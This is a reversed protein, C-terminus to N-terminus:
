YIINLTMTKSYTGAVKGTQGSAITGTITGPTATTGTGTGTITAAGNTMTASGNTYTVNLRNDGAAGLPTENELYYTSGTAPSDLFSINYTQGSSCNVTVASTATITNAPLYAAFTMSAASVTCTAAVSSAVAFQGTVTSLSNASEASILLVGVLCTLATTSRALSMKSKKLFRTKNKNLEKKM